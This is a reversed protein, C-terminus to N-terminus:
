RPVKPNQKSDQYRQSSVLIHMHKKQMHKAIEKKEQVMKWVNSM